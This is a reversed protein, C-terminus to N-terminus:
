HGLEAVRRAVDEPSHFLDTLFGRLPQRVPARPEHPPLMAIM